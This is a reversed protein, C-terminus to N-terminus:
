SVGMLLTYGDPASRVVIDVGITTTAGARNEVLFQRGLVESLKPAILRASIDTGGGPTSAVVLRVPKTPYDQACAASAAAVLCATLVCPAFAHAGPVTKLSRVDGTSDRIM